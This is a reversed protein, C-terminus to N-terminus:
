RLQAQTSTQLFNSKMTPVIEDFVVSHNRKHKSAQLAMEELQGAQVHQRLATVYEEYDQVGLGPDKAADANSPSLEGMASTQMKNISKSPRPAGHVVITAGDVKPKGKRGHSPQDGRPLSSKQAVGDRNLLGEEFQVNMSLM